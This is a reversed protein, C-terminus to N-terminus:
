KTRAHARWIINVRAPDATGDKSEKLLAHRCAFDFREGDFREGNFLWSELLVRISDVHYRSARTLPNLTAL